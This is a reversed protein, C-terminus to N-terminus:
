WFQRYAGLFAMAGLELQELKGADFLERNKYYHAVSMTLITRLGDDMPPFADEGSEGSQGSEPEIGFGADFTLRVRGVESWLVPRDFTSLPRVSFSRDQEEVWFGDLPADVSTTASTLYSIGTLERLPGRMIELPGSWWSPLDVQYTGPMLVFGTRREIFDCCARELRELTPVEEDSDVRLDLLLDDVPVPLAASRTLKRAPPAQWDGRGCRITVANRIFNDGDEFSIDAV